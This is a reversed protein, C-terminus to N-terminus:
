LDSLDDAEDSRQLHTTGTQLQKALAQLLAGCDGTLKLSAIEDARTIGDNVIILPKDLHEAQKCFRYGSYVMLSSGAVMLADVESLHQMVTSVVERPVSEGFFVVDPKLIDGCGPCEPVKLSDLNDIELDADGDPAYEASLTLLWPNRTTIEQQFDDRKLQKKCQVCSVTELVGHLDIVNEHGAKQHLRDVNQTVLFRAHGTQQLVRLAKHSATPQAKSFSPWGVCSRAWYRKRALENGIFEQGTIPQARKWQGKKDRYDGLGAATSIGAGTLILLRPHTEVFDLLKTDALETM